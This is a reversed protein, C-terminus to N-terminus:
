YDRRSFRWCSLALMLAIFGLSVGVAGGWSPFETLMGSLRAEGPTMTSDTVIKTTLKDLDKYRPLVNNLSDVVTYAWDPLETVHAVKNMDFFSKTQGFVYLFLMFGLTVLISAIASRTFVAVVTSISYLIAFTFTLVPTVLLFGPSWNGSRAAMMLWVGSITFASLLFIFTLGGIYKYVLLGPRSIPKSVLLDVSGKRLMNPIFFATIVVSLMLTVAAGIGNVIVDQIFYMAQGLPVGKLPPVVGFLVHVSQPWGRAGSIGSVQVDFRYAPEPSDFLRTVALDDIGVFTAFQYKIFSVMEEDTVTRLDDPTVQPPRVLELEARSQGRNRGDGQNGFPRNVKEGAPQCWAYVAYRFGDLSGNPGEAKEATKGDKGPSKPPGVELIFRAGNPMERVDTARYEILVPVGTPASSQGRNPFIARFLTTVKPLADTATDPRFSVSGVLVILLGSLGLMLYIVFGDVAERFSDKLIAYFQRM